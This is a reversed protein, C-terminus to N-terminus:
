YIYIYIYMIYKGFLKFLESIDNLTLGRIGLEM